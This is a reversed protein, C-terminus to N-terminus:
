SLHSPAHQRLDHTKLGELSIKTMNFKLKDYNMILTFYQFFSFSYFYFWIDLILM